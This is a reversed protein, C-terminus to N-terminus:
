REVRLRLFRRGEPGLPVTARVTQVDNEVAIVQESVGSTSWSDAALTDSWEVFVDLEAAAALARPYTLALSSGTREIATPSSAPHAPHLGTAFKLLNPLGDGRPAATDAADGINATTGFHQLRWLELASPISHTHPPLQATTLTFTNAGYTQGPTHFEQAGVVVRGVTDPLRFNSMGDGGYLNQFLSYLAQHSPIPLQVGELPLLGLASQQDPPVPAAMIRVDGLFPDTTIENGPYSGQVCIFFPLALSDQINNVPTGTGTSATTGSPLEHAHPPLHSAQLTISNGGHGIGGRPQTDFTVHSVGSGVLVRGRLDPLMFNSMGDGGFSVGVRSYLAMNQSIPLTQGQCLRANGQPPNVGAFLVIETLSWFPANSIVILHHLALGSQRNDFPANGGASGSVVDGSLTHTHAPMQAPQLTTLSSGVVTGLPLDAGTGVPVRGRLDPLRFKDWGDSGYTYFLVNFLAEYQNLPLARGDCPLWGAPLQRGAFLRIEGLHPDGHRDLHAGDWPYVGDVCIMYNLELSPQRNDIVAGAGAPGTVGAYLTSAFVLLLGSAGLRLFHSLNRMTLTM